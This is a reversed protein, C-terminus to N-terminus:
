SPRWEHNECDEDVALQWYCIVAASRVQMSQLMTQMGSISSAAMRVAAMEGALETM